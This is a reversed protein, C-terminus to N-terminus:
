FMFAKDIDMEVLNLTSDHFAKMATNKQKSAIIMAGLGINEIGIRRFLTGACKECICGNKAECLSTFRLKVKKGIFKSMTDTTIETLDGNSGVVFSYMWEKINKETLTITITRKTGCDSGKGQVRVHQMAATIQKEIYGGDKTKNSRSFPGYVAADNTKAYDKKELGSIYSSDVFSYSGDTLQIPGKILYMNKFNNGWSSRAGSNYTDASPSDKLEEKAFEILQNEIEKMAELNNAALEKAYQKELEKKKKEAKTTILLMDMTHSPCIASACGLVIQTQNIFDKLDQLSIKEELLAYSMADNIKNYQKGNISENIYGLIDSMPEIFAKNFVWLGVTTTFESKNKKNKGYKKAPITVIDYPNYKPGKGYDAFWDMILSKECAREHTLELIEDLEEKKIITRSHRKNSAAM